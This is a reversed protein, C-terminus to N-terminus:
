LDHISYITISTISFIILIALAGQEQPTRSMVTFIEDNIASPSATTNIIAQDVKKIM